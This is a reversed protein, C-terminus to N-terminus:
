RTTMSAAAVSANTLASLAASKISLLFFPALPALASIMVKADDDRNSASCGASIFLLYFDCYGTLGARENRSRVGFYIPPRPIFFCLLTTHPMLMPAAIPYPALQAISRAVPHYRSRWLSVDLRRSCSTAGPPAGTSAPLFSAPQIPRSMVSSYAALIPKTTWRESPTAYPMVAAANALAPAGGSRAPIAVPAAANTSTSSPTTPV